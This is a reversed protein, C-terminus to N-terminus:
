VDTVSILRGDEFVLSKGDVVVTNSVGAVNSVYNIFGSSNVVLNNGAKVVGAKTTNAYPAGNGFLNPVSITRTTFAGNAYKLILVRDNSSSTTNTVLLNSTKNADNSM